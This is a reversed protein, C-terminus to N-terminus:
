LIDVSTARWRSGSAELRLCVARVRDPTTVLATGEVVGPGCPNWRVRLVNHVPRATPRDRASRARAALLARRVVDRHPEFALFRALQAPERLGAQVDLVGRALNRILPAPDPLAVAPRRRDDDWALVNASVGSM